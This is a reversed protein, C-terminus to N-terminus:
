SVAFRPSSGSPSRSSRVPRKRSLSSTWLRSTASSPITGASSPRLVSSAPSADMSSPSTSSRSSNSNSRKVSAVTSIFRVTQPTACQPISSAASTKARSSPTYMAINASKVLSAATDGDQPYMAVGASATVRLPMGDIRFNKQLRDFISKAITGLAQTERAGELLVIFEDGGFRGVLTESRVRRLLDESFARLLDDGAVFGLSDNIAKFGDINLFIIGLLTGDANVQAIKQEAQELFSARSVIGTICDLAIDPHSPDSLLAFRDLRSDLRSAILTLIVGFLSLVVVFVPLINAHLGNTSYLAHAPFIAASMGTYHMGSIACGMALASGARQFPARGPVMERLKFAMWLSAWSALFAIAISGIFLSPRYQIAPQILMAGMGVYHMAVIGTALIFSGTVLQTWNIEDRITWQLSLYSTGIAILLSLMTMWLSYNVESPMKCALMGIFHMSWIGSGMATAGGLLWLKRKAGTAQIRRIRAALELITYSALVAVVLSLVVLYPNYTGHM